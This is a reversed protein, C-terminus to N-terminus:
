CWARLPNYNRSVPFGKFLKDYNEMISNWYPYSMRMYTADSTKTNELYKDMKTRLDGYTKPNWLYKHGGNRLILLWMSVMHPSRLWKPSGTFLCVINIANGDQGVCEVEHAKTLQWGHKSELINVFNVARQMKAMFAKKTQLFKEPKMQGSVSIRSIIRATKMDLNYKSKKSLVDRKIDM